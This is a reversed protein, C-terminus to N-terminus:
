VEYYIDNSTLTAAQVPRFTQDDEEEKDDVTEDIQEIFGELEEFDRM